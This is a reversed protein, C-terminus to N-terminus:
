IYGWLRTASRCHRLGGYLVQWVQGATLYFMLHVVTVPAHDDWRGLYIYLPLSQLGGVHITGMWLLDVRCHNHGAHRDSLQKVSNILNTLV